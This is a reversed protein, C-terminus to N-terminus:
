YGTIHQVSDEVVTWGFSAWRASIHAAITNPSRPMGQYGVLEIERIKTPDFEISQAEIRWADDQANPHCAAYRLMDLPFEGIGRVKFKFATYKRKM